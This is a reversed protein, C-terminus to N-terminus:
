YSYTELSLIMKLVVEVAKNYHGNDEDDDNRDDEKDDKSKSLKSQWGGSNNIYYKYIAIGDMIMM